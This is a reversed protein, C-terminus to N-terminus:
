TRVSLALTGGHQQVGSAALPGVTPVPAQAAPQAQIAAAATPAASGVTAASPVGGATCSALSLVVVSAPILGFDRAGSCARHAFM